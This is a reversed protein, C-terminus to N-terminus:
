KKTLFPLWTQMVAHFTQSTCLGYVWGALCFLGVCVGLICLIIAITKLIKM